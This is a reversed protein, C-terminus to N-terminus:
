RAAEGASSEPGTAIYGPHAVALKDAVTARVAVRVEDLRDDLAGSRIAAALEEESHVGLAALRAAHAAAQEPGLALQRGVIGVVNAAVRVHFALRGETAPVVEDRLFGEVAALLDAATPIDHPADNV